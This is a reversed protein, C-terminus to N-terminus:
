GGTTSPSYIHFNQFKPWHGLKIGLYPLKSFRGTDRFVSGISCFYAGNQRWPALLSYIHLKQCTPLTEHGFICNRDSQGIALNRAWIHCNSFWGTEWFGSNMSHFYPWNRGRPDFPFIHAVEPVKALLTDLGMPRKNHWRTYEVRLLREGPFSCHLIIDLKM